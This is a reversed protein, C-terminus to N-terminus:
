LQRSIKPHIKMLTNLFKGYEGSVRMLHSYEMMIALDSLRNSFDYIYQIKALGTSVYGKEKSPTTWVQLGSARFDTLIKKYAKPDDKYPGYIVSDSWLEGVLGAEISNSHSARHAVTSIQYGDHYSTIREIGTGNPKMEILTNPDGSLLVGLRDLIEEVGDM